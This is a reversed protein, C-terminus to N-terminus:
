RAQELLTCAERKLTAFTEPTCPTPAFRAHDLQSRFGEVARGKDPSTALAERMIAALQPLNAPDDPLRALKHLARVVPHQRKRWYGFLGALLLIVVVAALWWLIVPLPEPPLELDHLVTNM